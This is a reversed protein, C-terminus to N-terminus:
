GDAVEFTDGRPSRVAVIAVVEEGRKFGIPHLAGPKQWATLGDCNEAYDAAVFAPTGDAHLYRIAATPTGGPERLLGRVGASLPHSGVSIEDFADDPVARWEGATAPRPGDERYAAHGDIISWRHGWWIGWQDAEPERLARNERVIAGDFRAVAYHDGVKGGEDVAHVGSDETDAADFLEDLNLGSVLRGLGEGLDGGIRVATGDPVEVYVTACQRRYVKVALLKAM